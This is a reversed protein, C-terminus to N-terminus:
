GGLDALLVEAVAEEDIAYGHARMADALESDWDAQIRTATALPRGHTTAALAAQRFDQVGFHWALVGFDRMMRNGIHLGAWDFDGHYRLCAGAVRLQRLLTRQAAAPMGDTCIMPACRSGLRDAAIAVLNPNECVSVMRGEVRWHAPTRLLSRLSLYTPEGGAHALQRGTPTDAHCPLNLVLVPRALENVLVGVAAWRDRERPAPREVASAPHNGDSPSAPESMSEPAGTCALVLSALPRGRDLAHADGVSAAALQSRPVGAGPLRALVLQTQVILQEAADADRRALRKLEGLGISTELWARLRPQTASAIVAQWRRQLASHRAARDILPGDLLELANCLSDALGARRLAADVAAPDIRLSTARRHPLGLLGSLADRELNSLGSLTFPAANAAGREFRRRLRQRLNALADGGLLGRLRTLDPSESEDM